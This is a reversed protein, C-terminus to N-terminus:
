NKIPYASNAIENIPSRYTLVNTFFYIEMKYFVFYFIKGPIVLYDNLTIFFLLLYGMTCLFYQNKLNNHMMRYNQVYTLDLIKCIILQDCKM